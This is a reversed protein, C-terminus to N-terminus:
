TDGDPEPEASLNGFLDPALGGTRGEYDHIEDALQTWLDAAEPDEIARQRCWDRFPTLRSV